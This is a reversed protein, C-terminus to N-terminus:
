KQIIVYKTTVSNDSELKCFYIGAPLTTIDITKNFVGGAIEENAISMMEQGINNYLAIKIKESKTLMFSVNLTNGAPVPYVSFLNNNQNETITTTTSVNIIGFYPMKNFATATVDIIGAVAAPITIIASTGNSIGTGLIIGNMSLCVLADNINCSVTISTTGVPTFNIHSTVMPAPTNTYVMVSPDGFITWTDTMEYGSAQYADNMQMCGNMSLGGFTRQINGSVSEVLIDVMADQGEMPPDWSQNITSMFAALAGKPQSPSGQRLWAEAFCEGNSVFNGNVCAVSWIFPHKATNTLNHVDTSSFGSSVFQDDSGHGTYTIIGVGSNVQALIGSATPDGAADTNGQSGDYNESVSNYTFALLKNRIILQHEFDMENDDGPGQESAITIGKKYWTGTAQPTKEYNITRNVMTQVHTSNTASFRGVFVEPYSDNGNIYGYDTDSDGASTSSSPVQAADGVLLVYKLTPHTSYYNAIYTKIAASNAGALSKLVLKTEIGKRNKWTVFPLMDSSFADHCIILMSGNETVPTYRLDEQQSAYNIFQRQYIAEFEKDSIKESNIREFQNQGGTANKLTVAVVINTYVRLVKTQPNYQFPCVSIAQGRHDRLIYPANLAAITSPFFSNKAYETGYTYPVEAPDINRKLNGKSPAILINPLDYYNSSVISLEMEARDPIVISTTLKQLDPAGALLLATGKDLSILQAEGQPTSVKKLTFNGPTFEITIATSTNVLKINTPAGAVTIGPLLLFLTALKKM